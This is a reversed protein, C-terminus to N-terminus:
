EDAIRKWAELTESATHTTPHDPGLVRAVDPLLAAFLDRAGAPNGAGATWRAHHGRANLTEPHDPGLVRVLDTLLAVFLDRAGAPNGAEGTWRAHSGREALTNPHDPGLVRVLDTLLTESLDGAGAPNGAVGTLSARDSRATVTIPDDPGLVRELDPLLAAFLDLAGAASGARGTWRAHHGRAILTEPHDPGLVREVDPLLAAFLDRAGAANGAEGTWRAHRGREALTGPQDPGYDKHAKMEQICTQGEHIADAYKYADALVQALAGRAKIIREHGAPRHAVQGQRIKRYYDIATDFLWPADSQGRRKRALAAWAAALNGLVPFTAPSGEGYKAVLRDLEGQLLDLARQTHGADFLAEATAVILVASPLGTRLRKELRALVAEDLATRGTVRRIRILEATWAPDPEIGNRIADEGTLAALISECVDSPMASWVDQAKAARIHGAMCALVNQKKDPSLEILVRGLATQHATESIFRFVGDQTIGAWGSAQAAAMDSVSLPAAGDPTGPPATTLWEAPVKPGSVSAAALSRRTGPPLAELLQQAQSWPTFSELDAPLRAAGNVAERIAPINLLCVLRGPRGHSASIVSALNQKNVLESEGPDLHHAALEVLENPAMPALAINNLRGADREEDLWVYLNESSGEGRDNAHPSDTNLALVIMGRTESRRLIVKLM